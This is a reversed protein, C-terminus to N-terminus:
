LHSYSVKQTTAILKTENLNPFAMAMTKFDSYFYEISCYAKTTYLFIYLIYVYIIATYLIYACIHTYMGLLENYCFSHCATRSTYSIKYQFCM